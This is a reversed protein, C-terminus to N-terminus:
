RHEAGVPQAGIAEALLSAESWERAPRAAALRGRCMVAITDCVGLLEPLYSSVMIIAKGATALEDILRYVHTKAGVDIGRTPEDLLLIEAGHHLLRGIAVKQQNGGSLEGVAQDPGRAKVTLTDMWGRAAVRQREGSVVGFRAYRGLRTLTLNDAISRGLALGEEKRNESVLGMGSRLRARPSARTVERGGISVSGGRIPDLGFVARLMESRGSGVLGFIGLVEGRRLSLTAARPLRRGSVGDLALLPEGLVHATRPYLESVERGVMLRILTSQGANGMAGSGVSRGDRLVAFRDAVVRCEELFHSIYVISVGAGRLRRVVAFLRRADDAALSSTPEDLVLLRPNAALARAIEVLQQAALPLSGALRDPDIDVAGLQALAALAGARRAARRVFGLRRPEAGLLINEAVSLHPALCLEQHVIAVGRRRADLPTRPAYGRGDLEMMGRDPAIAGCLVKMLTSKGAGNEGILAVVEGEGVELDVGALAATAGFRKAIGTMRLRPPM